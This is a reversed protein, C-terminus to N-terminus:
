TMLQPSPGSVLSGDPSKEFSIEGGVGKESVTCLLISQWHQNKWRCWFFLSIQWGADEMHDWINTLNQGKYEITQIQQAWILFFPTLNFERM